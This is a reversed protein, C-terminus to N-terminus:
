DTRGFAKSPTVGYFNKFEKIFHAQDYYGLDYFIKNQKLSELSPKARLINQFRVVQSFTKPSDGFYFQFRRRLQRGSLGTDLDRIDKNGGSKLIEMMAKMVRPDPELVLNNKLLGGFYKDFTDKYGHLDKNPSIASSIVNSLDPLIDELSFFSNTLEFAPINFLLPFGTPLFRVGIYDFEHGLGYQLYNSSFGTIYIDEPKSVELLIDVCGDSVVRYTFDHDLKTTTRLRWYCYIHDQILHNPATEKYSVFGKSEYNISPQSPHFLDRITVLEKYNLSRSCLPIYM